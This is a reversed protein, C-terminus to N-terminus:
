GGTHSGLRIWGINEGWVHGELHTSYVSVEGHTPNFNLWGTNESWAFKHNPDIGQGQGIVVSCDHTGTRWDSDGAANSARVRYRYSGNGVNEPYSTNGGSYALSWTSGGNSSRELRYSTAGTSAAWSVSYSGTSSTTPYTISAPPIPPVAVVCDHTGTRWDSDGAANSARVRYRYSGNGM